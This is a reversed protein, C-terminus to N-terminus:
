HRLSAKKARSEAVLKKIPHYDNGMKRRTINFYNNQKCQRGCSCKRILMINKSFKEGNACKFQITKVKFGNYDKNEGITGPKFSMDPCCRGDCAPCYNMKISKKSECGSFMLKTKEGRQIKVRRKKTLKCQLQRKSRSYIQYRRSQRQLPQRECKRMECLMIEKRLQCKKNDNTVRESYGWGCTKSCPTWPTQQITCAEEEKDPNAERVKVVDIPPSIAPAHLLNLEDCGVPTKAPPRCGINGDVCFCESNCSPYFNDGSAYEMDGAHCSRGPKPRCIGQKPSKVNEYKCVLELTSDCPATADCLEGNQRGCVACCSYDGTLQIMGYGVPCYKARLVENGNQALQQISMNTGKVKECTARDCGYAIQTLLFIGLLKM